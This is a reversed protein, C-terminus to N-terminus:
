GAAAGRRVQAELGPTSGDAPRVACLVAGFVRVCGDLSCGHEWAAVLGTSACRCGCSPSMLDASPSHLRKETVRGEGGRGEGANM